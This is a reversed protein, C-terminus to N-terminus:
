KMKRPRKDAPIRYGKRPANEIGYPKLEPIYRSTLASEDIYLNTKQLADLIMPGTLGRHTPQALLIEYVASAKPSLIPLDAEGQAVPASPTSASKRDGWRAALRHLLMDAGHIVAAEQPHAMDSEPSTVSHPFAGREGLEPEEQVLDRVKDGAVQILSYDWNEAPYKSQLWKVASLIVAEADGHLCVLRDRGWEAVQQLEPPVIFDEVEDRTAYLMPWDRWFDIAQGLESLGPLRNGVRLHHVMLGLDAMQDLDFGWNDFQEQIEDLAPGSYEPEQGPSNWPTDNAWPLRITRTVQRPGRKSKEAM